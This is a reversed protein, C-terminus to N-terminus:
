EEGVEKIILEQMYDPLDSLFDTRNWLYSLIGEEKVIEEMTKYKKKM